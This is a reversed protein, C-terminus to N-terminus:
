VELVLSTASVAAEETCEQGPDGDSRQVCLLRRCFLEVAREVPDPRYSDGDGVAAASCDVAGCISWRTTDFDHM